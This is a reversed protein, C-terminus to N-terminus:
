VIFWETGDTVVTLADFQNLLDQTTAGDITESVNGDITVANSSSDTKKIFYIRGSIGSVAPLTITRAGGSADVFIITEAGATISTSTSNVKWEQSSGFIMNASFTQVGVITQVGQTMLFSANTGPDPITLVRSTSPAPATITVTNTVGLVLQNTVDQITVNGGVQLDDVLNLGGSDWDGVEATAISIGINDAGKRFFGTTPSNEFALAPTAASGDGIQIQDTNTSLKVVVGTDQWGGAAASITQFSAGNHIRLENTDTRYFIQGLIGSPDGTGQELVLQETGKQQFDVVGTNKVEFKTGM